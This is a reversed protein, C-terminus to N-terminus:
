IIKREDKVEDRNKLMQEAIFVYGISILGAIVWLHNWLFYTVEYFANQNFIIFERFFSSM